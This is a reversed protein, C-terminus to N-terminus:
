KFDMIEIIKKREEVLNRDFDDGEFYKLFVDIALYMYEKFIDIEIMLEENDFKLWVGDLMHRADDIDFNKSYYLCNGKKDGCCSFRTIYELLKIFGSESMSYLYDIFITYKEEKPFYSYFIDKNTIERRYDFKMDKIINYYEMIQNKKDPFETIYEEVFIKLCEKFVVGTVFFEDYEMGDICYGISIGTDFYAEEWFEDVYPLSIGAVHDIGISIKKSLNAMVWPFKFKTRNLTYLLKEFDNM